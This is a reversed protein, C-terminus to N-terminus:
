NTWCVRYFGQTANGLTLPVSITMQPAVPLILQDSWNTTQNLSWPVAQWADTSTLDNKYFIRYTANTNTNFALTLRNDAPQLNVSAIRLSSNTPDSGALYDQWVPWGDNNPDTLDANPATLGRQVLWTEPTGMATVDPRFVLAPDGTLCFTQLREPPMEATMQQLGNKLVDGLRLTGQAAAQSYLAVGLASGEESGLYGTAGLAAVFGSGPLFVGYPLILPAPSPSQWRNVRCGVVVAIMPKQWNQSSIDTYYLLQEGNGRAGLQQENTHGFFHFLGSGRVFSPFLYNLRVPLMNGPDGPDPDQTYYDTVVTRGAALLSPIVLDTAASFSYAQSGVNDWDAAVSAQQKWLLAGEYAITKQVVVAMDQTSTTPLRGIAVEPAADGTVDGLAQDLAVTMGYGESPFQQGAILTPILCATYDNVSLAEHKFDLCGAGALLVYRLPHGPWNTYGACCFAHIAQPDVLGFSFQNYLSEVDVIVTHLGQQNRFDALPQLVPRIDHRWGEPPVLIIYDAANGPLTWDVDCVGRISPQLTGSSKSVVAYVCNTGGCPFAATWNSSGGGCALSVPGVVNPLNTTTVDLVLVDNTTFGAVAITNSGGGTCRLVNNEAQYCRPYSYALSICIPNYDLQSINDIQLAAVGRSLNTSSFSYSFSIYQEGTWAAQGVSMGGVRARTAYTDAGSDGYYFSLLNVTVTGTWVNTVCDLLPNNVLLSQGGAVPVPSFAMYSVPIDALSSNSYRLFYNTGQCFLQDWFWANTTAPDATTMTETPMDAGPGLNVWYVNEPAFRSLPPVGYFFLNAGEAYWAVPAGQCSLSLNTTALANTISTLSWGSAAALDAASVCYVGPDRLSLRVRDAPVGNTWACVRPGNGIWPQRQPVAAVAAQPSAITGSQPLVNAVAIVSANQLLSKPELSPPLIQGEWSAAEMDPGFRSVLRLVYRLSTGAVVPQDIVAYSHGEEDRGANVRGVEVVQTTSGTDVVHVVRFADVGLEVTTQWQVTVRGDQLLAAHFNTVGALPVYSMTGGVACLTTVALLVVILPYRFNNMTLM